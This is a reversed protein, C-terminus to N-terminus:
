KAPGVTANPSDAVFGRECCRRLKANTNCGCFECTRWGEGHEPRHREQLLKNIQSCAWQVPAVEKLEDDSEIHTLDSDGLSKDLVSAIEELKATSNPAQNM